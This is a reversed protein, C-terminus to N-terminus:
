QMTELTLSLGEELMDLARRAWAIAAAPHGQTHQALDVASYIAAIAIDDPTVGQQACLAAARRNVRRCSEIQAIAKDEETM